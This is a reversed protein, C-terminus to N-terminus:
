DRDTEDRTRRNYRSLILRNAGIKKGENIGTWGGRVEM